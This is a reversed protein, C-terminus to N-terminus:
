RRVFKAGLYVGNSIGMLAQFSDPIVPIESSTVVRMVVFVAIVVTFFLMQVRTVDIEAVGDAEVVLDSWQPVRPGTTSVSVYSWKGFTAPAQPYPATAAAALRIDYITHPELRDLTGATGNTPADTWGDDTDRRRRQLCYAAAQPHAEWQVALSVNGVREGPRLGQVPGIAGAPEAATTIAVQCGPGPVAGNTAFVNVVYATSPALGVLRFGPRELTTTVTTWAPPGEGAIAYQVTYGDPVGELPAAWTLRRESATPPDNPHLGVVKGPTPTTGSGAADASAKLRTGLTSVGSIGLLVLMGPSLDILTGSLAMVYIASGGVVFSWLIIQLQSLSAYGESDTIVQLLPSHGGPIKRARGFLALALWAIVVILVSACAAFVPNTVGFTDTVDLGTWGDGAGPTAIVRLRALPVFGLATYAEGRAQYLVRDWWSFPAPPLDPVSSWLAVSAAGGSTTVLRVPAAEIWTMNKPDDWAWQYCTHVKIGAVADEPGTITFKLQSGPTRWASAPDIAVSLRLNGDRDQSRGDPCPSPPPAARAPAPEPAPRSLAAAAAPAGAVLGVLALGAGILAPKV